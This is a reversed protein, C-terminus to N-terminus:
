QLAGMLQGLLDGLLDGVKSAGLVFLVV